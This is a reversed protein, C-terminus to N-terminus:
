FDISDKFSKLFLSAETQIIDLLKKQLLDFEKNIKITINFLFGYMLCEEYTIMNSFNKDKLYNMEEFYKKLSILRNRQAIDNKSLSIPVNYKIIITLTCLMYTITVLFFTLHSFSFLYAVILCLNFFAVNKFLWSFTDNNYQYKLNLRKLVFTCLFAIFVCIAALCLTSVIVEISTNFKSTSLTSFFFLIFGIFLSLVSIVAGLIKYIIPIPKHELLSTKEIFNKFANELTSINKNKTSYIQKVFDLLNVNNSNSFLYNILIKEHNSLEIKICNMRRTLIYQYNCGDYYCSLDIIRKNILQMILLIIEKKGPLRQSLITSLYLIDYDKFSIDFKPEILDENFVGENKNYMKHERVYYFIVLAFVIFLVGYLKKLLPVTDQMYEPFPHKMSLFLLVVLQIFIILLYIINLVKKCNM